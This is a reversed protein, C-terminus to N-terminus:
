AITGKHAHLASLYLIFIPSLALRELHAHFQLEQAKLVTTAKLAHDTTSFVQYFLHLHALEMFVSFDQQAVELQLLWTQQVVTNVQLVTNVTTSLPEELKTM